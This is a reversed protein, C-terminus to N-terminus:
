TAEHKTGDYSIEEDRQLKGTLFAHDRGEQLYDRQIIDFHVDTWLVNTIGYEDNIV